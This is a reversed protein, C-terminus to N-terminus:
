MFKYILFLIPCSLKKKRVERDCYLIPYINRLTAPDKEGMVIFQRRDPFTRDMALSILGHNKRSHDLRSQTLLTEKHIKQSEDDEGEVMPPLFNPVGWVNKATEVHTAEESPIIKKKKKAKVEVIDQELSRRSNKFKECLKRKWM